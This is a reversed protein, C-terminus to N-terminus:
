GPGRREVRSDEAPSEQRGDGFEARCGGRAPILNAVVFGALLGILVGSRLGLWAQAAVGVATFLVM